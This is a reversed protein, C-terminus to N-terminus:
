IYSSLADTNIKSSSGGTQKERSINGKASGGNHNTIKSPVNKHVGLSMKHM